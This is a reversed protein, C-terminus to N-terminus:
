ANNKEITTRLTEVFHAGFARELPVAIFRHLPIDETRGRELAPACESFSEVHIETGGKGRRIPFLHCSLPKPWDTMGDRYAKEFACKAIEGEYYVYVCARGNLCPTAHDGPDGDVFGEREVVARHEAPLMSAVVPYLREMIRAEEDTVPAGRGGPFTCCAGKCRALDCAFKTGSVSDDVTIEGIVFM